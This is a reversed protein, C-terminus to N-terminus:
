KQTRVTLTRTTGAADKTTLQLTSQNLFSYDDVYLECEEGLDELPSGNIALVHDGYQLGQADADSGKKVWKIIFRGDIKAVSFNRKLPTVTIPAAEYGEYYFWGDRYDITVTGYQLLGSGIRPATRKSLDSHSDEFIVNGLALQNILASYRQESTLDKGSFGFSFIGEYVAMENTSSNQRDALDSTKFSFWDKSGSDFEIYQRKGDLALKVSPLGRKSIKMKNRAEPNLQLRNAQNTIRLTKTAYDIQLLVDKLLNRGIMGTNGFCRTPYTNYSNSVIAEEGKIEWNGIRLTPVAVKEFNRSLQSIDSVEIESTVALNQADKITEAITFYGGTDLVFRYVIDGISVPVIIAGKILEFPVPGSDIITTNANKKLSSCSMLLVATWLLISTKKM